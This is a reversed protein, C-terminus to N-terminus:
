RSDKGRARRHRHGKNCKGRLKSTFIAGINNQGIAKVNSVPPRQCIDASNQLLGRKGGYLTMVFRSLPEDPLDSFSAQIGGRRGPGIQGELVIKIAGSSLDAVLDPLAHGPSSRLYVNGRLPQDLLPTEAVASGYISNAPCANAAFQVKTCIGRIHQQALFQQRPIVVAIDKLNSDTPGRSAFTVRLQPYGRRKTSGRLRIGLLPHFGLIRCNLLQFHQSVTVTSDDASTAFSQGSGTLTSELQAPECSSPNHTFEPRDVYIRIDRVHLVIGDIIHPIADSLNSDIRLQATHEDIKFASHIVITGLDFPGVTAPNITVLSLPAGRYPGALYVRGATYALASGLGYGTYTHGVQSAEPCSPHAAEDFGRKRRAAEIAADPCFPIGALKGTVGKPLNLSYSTIEQETDARAIRVYYPTYSNVNANVGGTTISPSFGAPGTPCPGGGPGTKILTYSTEEVPKSAGGWPLLEVVTGVYGCRSPTALFGRQGSRFSVELDTYPLQPLGDFVATVTGDNPDTRIEGALRVMVGRQPSKALMYVALLSDFPNEAGPAPTGPDDPQALYVAGELLDAFLPTGVRLTGIKSEEPCGSGQGNFATEAAFQAPTCFGLGAGVSPNITTGEPLKVIATKPPAPNEYNPDALRSHNIKLRFAFGSPSTANTNDLHAVPFPNFQLYSCVMGAPQGAKTRNVASAQVPAPQQWADATALFSLSGFCQAPLSLYSMREAERPDGVSCKAWPFSPEAENLCDGREGNHSDGWPTGWLALELSHMDLTQPVNHAKIILAQSGDVNPAIVVDFVIPAGYPAFGFQAAVGPVPALNFLGFAREGRSTEVTVTGLQTALPCDEGSRSIEFPSSRPTHFDRRECFPLVSPNVILGSPMEIRLDRLDGDPFIAGPQDEFEGGQNLGIRFSMQYPHSGARTAAEGGDAVIAADFGASGPLFGFGSTTQFSGSTGAGATGVTTGSANTAVLRYYYTTNPTLGSIRARAPEETSGSGAPAAATKAAGAFSAQTGYEFYYTTPLGQPDVGGKLLASVGQIDTASVPALTPAAASAAAVGFTLAAAIAASFIAIRAKM